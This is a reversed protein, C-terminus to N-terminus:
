AQRGDAGDAAYVFEHIQPGEPLKETAIQKYWATMRAEMESRRRRSVCLDQWGRAHLLKEVTQLCDVETLVFNSGSSSSHGYLRSVHAELLVPRREVRVYEMAESLAAWSAEVDNGDVTMTKIAFPKGRDCIAREGHQTAASTSIGWGNNAVIMLIPLEAGPRTSWLLCSAFDGEATGADGGQVITIGAKAGSQKRRRQALATGIAVTFQTAIPSTIPAVNWLRKTYHGIFSRGRSYPDTAASRMMRLSDISSAGLALMTATSRYHLHLYDHELGQGKDVLVGLCANFAEEGPGGIWFYGDGQRQMRILREELIRAELMVEYVGLLTSKSLLPPALKNTPWCVGTGSIPSIM